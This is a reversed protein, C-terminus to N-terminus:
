YMDDVLFGLIMSVGLALREVKARTHQPKNIKIVTHVLDINQYTKTKCLRFM